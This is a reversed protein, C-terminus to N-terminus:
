PRGAYRRVVELMFELPDDCEQVLRRRAQEARERAGATALWARSREIAQSVNRVTSVHGYRDQMADLYGRRSVPSLFIAPTGLCAAEAAMCSGEGVYLRAFALLHLAEGTPLPNLCGRMDGPVPREASIIVRGYGKLVELLRRIESDSPGRVGRDHIARWAKLRLVVFPEDPDVGHLRLVDGCPTFRSPHTYALHPPANFRLEKGGFRRGYGLGTCIVTAFPASLAIQLRAFETDDFVISPLRLAKGVLGTAIGTRAVLVDPRFRRALRLMRATRWGLELGMGGLGERMRSLCTHPIALSDLLELTEDKDRSTVLVEDGSRRLVGILDKFFHVQAPHRLDFLARM